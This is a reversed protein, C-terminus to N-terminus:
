KTTSESKIEGSKLIEFASQYHSITEKMLTTKNKEKFLYYKEKKWTYSTHKKQTELALLNNNKLLAVKRHNGIFVRKDNPSM